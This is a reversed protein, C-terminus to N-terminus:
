NLKPDHAICYGWLDSKRNTVLVSDKADLYFPAKVKKAFCNAPTMKKLNSFDIPNVDRPDLYICNASNVAYKLEDYLRKQKELSLESSVNLVPGLWYCQIKPSASLVNVLQTRIQNVVARSANEDKDDTKSSQLFDQTGLSFVIRRARTTRLIESLKIPHAKTEPESIGNIWQLFTAQHVSHIEIQEDRLNQTRSFQSIFSAGFSNKLSSDGVLLTDITKKPKVVPLPSHRKSLWLATLIATLFIFLILLFKKNKLLGMYM